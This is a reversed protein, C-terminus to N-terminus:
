GLDRGKAWPFMDAQAERKMGGIKRGTSSQRSKVKMTEENLKDVQDEELQRM